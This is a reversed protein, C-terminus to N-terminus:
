RNPRADKDGAAVGALADSGRGRDIENESGMTNEGTEGSGTFEVSRLWALPRKKFPSAEVGECGCDEWRENGSSM